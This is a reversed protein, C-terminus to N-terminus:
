LPRAEVISVTLASNFASRPKFGNRTRPTGFTRHTAGHHASAYLMMCKPHCNSLRAAYGPPNPLSPPGGSGLGPGESGASLRVLGAPHLFSDFALFVGVGGPWPGDNGRSTFLILVIGAERRVRWPSGRL